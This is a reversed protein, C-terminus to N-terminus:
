PILVVKSAEQLRTMEFGRHYEELPLTCTIVSKLDLRGAGALALTNRWSEQDYGMHGYFQLNKMSFMDLSSNYPIQNMGIRVLRGESRLVGVAADTLEPVGAADIVLAVGDAGAVDKIKTVIDKEEDSAFFEDAGYKRAIAERRKRDSRLGVAIIKSAGGIYAQAISMLGLAGVGFVVVIEGPKMRGQQIVANYGNAAPDMLTAEEFSLNRPIKWLCNKYMSLLEGPIKVYETFGGDMSVGMTERHECAVFHGQSCSFCRGCAGGTNDSVVRDGIQWYDEVEKGKEAIEGAFEHGMIFPVEGIPKMKGYYFHLDSGCIGCAKIKLLIDRDGIVPKEVDRFEVKGQGCLVVAKM